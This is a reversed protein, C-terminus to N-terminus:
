GQGPKSIIGKSEQGDREQIHMVIVDGEYLRTHGNPIIIHHRRRVMVILVKQAFQIDKM